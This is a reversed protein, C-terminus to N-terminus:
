ARRDIRVHISPIHRLQAADGVILAGPDVAPHRTFCPDVGANETLGSLVDLHGELRFAHEVALDEIALSFTGDDHQRIYVWSGNESSPHAGFVDTLRRNLHRARPELHTAVYEVEAAARQLAEDQFPDDSDHHFPFTASM